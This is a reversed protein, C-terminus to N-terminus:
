NDDKKTERYEEVGKGVGRILDALRKGGFLLIVVIAIISIELAGLQNFM